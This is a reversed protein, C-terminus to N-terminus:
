EPTIETWPLLLDSRHTQGSQHPWLMLTPLPSASIGKRTFLLHAAPRNRWVPGFPEGLGLKMNKKRKKKEKETKKNWKYIKCFEKL